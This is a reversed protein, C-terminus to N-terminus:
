QCFGLNGRDAKLGCCVCAYTNYKDMALRHQLDSPPLLLELVLSLLFVPGFLLHKWVICKICLATCPYSSDAHKLCHTAPWPVAKRALLMSLLLANLLALGEKFPQINEQFVHEGTCIIWSSFLVVVPFDFAPMIFLVTAGPECLGGDRLWPTMLVTPYGLPCLVLCEPGVHTLALVPVGSSSSLAQGPCGTLQKEM